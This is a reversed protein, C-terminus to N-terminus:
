RTRLMTPSPTASRRLEYTYWRKVVDRSYSNGTDRAVFGRLRPGFSDLGSFRREPKVIQVRVGPPGMGQLSTGLRRPPKRSGSRATEVARAQSAEDSADQQAM